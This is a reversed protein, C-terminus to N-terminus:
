PKAGQAADIAARRMSIETQLRKIVVQLARNYGDRYDPAVHSASPHFKQRELYALLAAADGVSGSPQPAASGRCAPCDKVCKVPGCNYPTGDPYCDIEGDDVLGTGHCKACPQLSVSVTVADGAAEVPTRRCQEGYARAYQSILVRLESPVANGLNDMYFVEPLRPLPPMETMPAPSATM